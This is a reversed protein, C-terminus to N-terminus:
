SAPNYQVTIVESDALAGHTSASFDFTGTTGDFTVGGAKWQYSVDSITMVNLPAVGILSNDQLTNGVPKQMLTVDAAPTTRIYFTVDATSPTPASTTTVPCLKNVILQLAQLITFTDGCPNPNPILCKLDLGTVPAALLSSSITALANQLNSIETTISTIKDILEQFFVKPADTTPNFTFIEKTLGTTDLGTKLTNIATAMFQLVEDLCPTNSSFTFGALPNVGTYVSCTTPTVSGCGSGFCNNM